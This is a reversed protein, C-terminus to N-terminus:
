NSQSQDEESESCDIWYTVRAGCATCHCEQVIGPGEIGYDEYDFDADWIVARQGCHFCEYM